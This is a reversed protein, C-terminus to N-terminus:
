KSWKAASFKITLVTLLLSLIAMIKEELSLYIVLASISCYSM